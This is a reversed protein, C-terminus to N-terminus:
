DEQSNRIGLGVNGSEKSMQSFLSNENQLLNQPSDFERIEGKDLLIVRDSDLITNLRHAITIVTAGKFEKRITKQILEDTDLDVAATAEDLVLIKTKRLLARALCVLSRQGVSLNEGGEAVEFDLGGPLGKVFNKLHALELTHWLREDEELEFPDLNIRLSGSFLVPDQPIIAIRGRVDHLGLRSIDHGDVSISGGDAEVIRFIALTLSSKGAGTRGVIGIKEGPNITCSVNRLVLDLGPRYKTEYSDFIIKGAQPWDKEPKCFPDNTEWDAEQVVNSYEKLREVAVINTEMESTVRVLLFLASTIQLAYSVSLGVLGASLTERGLVAFLAAFFVLSNGVTELRVQLWRNCSVTCYVSRMNHDVKQEMEMVFREQQGFARITTAGSLTEGFHSFIPSRSVCELRKLQRTTAIYFHQIFYYLLGVPLIVLIFIPTSISIVVLTALVVLTGSVLHRLLMPIWSDICEVDRSFRNLIQGLPTVDFYSLPARMIRELTLFHLVNSARVTGIAMVLSAFLIAVGQCVGLIGYISLYFTQDSALATSNGNGTSNESPVSTWESLWLNAGVSFAQFILHLILTGCALTWGAAQFYHLYVSAKVSKTEAKEIEILRYKEAESIAISSCISARSYKRRRISEETSLHEFESVRRVKPIPKVEDELSSSSSTGPSSHQKLFDAFAGKKDLLQQYTGKESIKGNMMVIINDMSPLHVIGNTVLLRTKRRLIGKPGLVKEFIHKGVHADVSCLPDDLLFIDANSYVARALSLRQKQGGSLNIGKEGIETKDGAVLMELDPLLACAELIKKYKHTDYPKGFLINDRVSGSQIWAQQSVYAVNGKVNVYGRYIILENLLSSLLSSKGAGIGGLIAVLQGEKVQLNIDKLTFNESYKDWSFWGDQIVVPNTESQSNSVADLELEDANLYKSLRKISVIAQICTSIMFPLLSLPQSMINFLSMSVFATQADLVKDKNILIYAGFTSIAMLFPACTWLFDSVSTLYAMTRLRKLEENRIKLVQNEFSLEWAYLKLVKIGSLIESMLKTRKDKWKMQQKQLKQAKTAVFANLPLIILIVVVGALSSPGLIGWLFYLALFLLVPANWLQNSLQCFESVFNIDVGMINVIEGQSKSRKASNSLLLPKGIFSAYLMGKWQPEKPSGIFDILLDLIQPSAFFLVNTVTRILFAFMYTWGFSKALTLFVGGDKGKKSPKIDKKNSTLGPNLDNPWHGDFLASNHQTTESWNLYWVDSYELPKRFGAWTLPTVWEFFLKSLFSASCEPTIKMKTKPDYENQYIPAIDAWCHLIFQGVVLPFYVVEGIFVLPDTEGTQLNLLLTRFRIGQTLTFILWFLFQIGSSCIGKRKSYILLGTYLSLTAAQVVPSWIDVPYVMESLLSKVIFGMEIGMLCGTLFLKGISLASWPIQKGPVSVHSCYIDIPAFVWLFTPVLYALVTREFCSTFVPNDTNWTLDWD